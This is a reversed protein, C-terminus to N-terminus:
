VQNNVHLDNSSTLIVHVVRAAELAVTLEFTLERYYGQFFLFKSGLTALSVADLDSSIQGSVSGEQPVGRIRMTGASITAGEHAILIQHQAYDKHPGIDVGTLTLTTISGTTLLTTTVRESTVSM